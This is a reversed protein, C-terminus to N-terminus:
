NINSIKKFTLFWRTLKIYIETLHELSENKIYIKGCYKKTIEVFKCVNSYSWFTMVTKTVNLRCLRNSFTYKTKIESANWINALCLYVITKVSPDKLSKGNWSEM